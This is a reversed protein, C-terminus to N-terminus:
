GHSKHGYRAIARRNRPSEETIGDAGGKFPNTRLYMGKFLLFLHAVNSISANFPVISPFNGLCHQLSNRDLGLVFRVINLEVLSTDDLNGFIDGILSAQFNYSDLLSKLEELSVEYCLSSLNLSLSISIDELIPDIEKEMSRRDEIGLVCSVFNAINFDCDHVRPNACSISDSEIFYRREPYTGLSYFFPFHDGHEIFILSFLKIEHSELIRCLLFNM